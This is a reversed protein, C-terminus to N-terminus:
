EVSGVEVVDKWLFADDALLRALHQNFPAYFADVLERTRGAPLPGHQRQVAAHEDAAAAEV